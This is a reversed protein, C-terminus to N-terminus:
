DKLRDLFPSSEILAWRDPIINSLSRVQTPKFAMVRKAGPLGARAEVDWRIEASGTMQLVRGTEWDPILLGAASNAEINGLTNFFNNGTYDPWSLAGEEELRLFGAKGGRHSVDAGDAVATAICFTDARAILATDDANLVTRTELLAAGPELAAVVERKQIYKPCNGFAHIVDLTFGDGDIDSVLGNVRNRRRTEWQLGLCGVSLGDRLVAALPDGPLPLANIRLRREYLAHSFGPTGTLISAWPKGDADVFGIFLMPLLTYFDRHQEILHDRISHAASREAREHVGVREQVALEGAHFPSQGRM